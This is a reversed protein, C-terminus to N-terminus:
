TSKFFHLGRQKLKEDEWESWYLQFYKNETAETFYEKNLM